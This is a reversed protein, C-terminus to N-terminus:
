NTITVEDKNWVNVNILKTEWYVLIDTMFYLTMIMIHWLENYNYIWEMGHRRVDHPAITREEERITDPDAIWSSSLCTNGRLYYHIIIFDYIPHLLLTLDNQNTNTWRPPQWLPNFVYQM